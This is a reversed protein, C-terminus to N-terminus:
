HRSVRGAKHCIVYTVNGGKKGWFQFFFIYIFDNYGRLKIFGTLPSCIYIIYNLYLLVCLLVCTFDLMLCANNKSWLTSM